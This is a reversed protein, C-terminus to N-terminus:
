VKGVAFPIVNSTAPLAEHDILAARTLADVKKSKNIYRAYFAEVMAISTDHNKAVIAIPLRRLLQRAVSSYRLCYPSLTTDLGLREIVSRFRDAVDWLKDLLPQSATRNDARQRLLAALRPSIPLDYDKITKNLKKRTLGKRSAPITLIPKAPDDDNLHRPRLRLAQSERCGTDALIQVLLGLDDGQARGDDHCAHVIATVISDPLIFNDRVIEDDGDDNAKAPGRLAEKWVKRTKIRDDDDAAQNLASRLSKAYRAVSEQALGKKLMAAWWATFDHKKLLGVPKAAFPAPLHRKKLTTANYLSRGATQLDAEYAELAQLVTAMAGSNGEGQRALALGKEVAQQYSLVTEGNAEEFDDAIAFKRIWEPRRKVIISWSGAGTANRRFGLHVSPALKVTHPKTRPELRLRQTRNELTNSRTRRAM